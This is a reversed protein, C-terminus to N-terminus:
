YVHRSDYACGGLGGPSACQGGTRYALDMCALENGADCSERDPTVARAPTPDILIALAAALPLVYAPIKKLM